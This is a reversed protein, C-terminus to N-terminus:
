SGAVYSFDMHKLIIFVITQNGPKHTQKELTSKPHYAQIQLLVHGM